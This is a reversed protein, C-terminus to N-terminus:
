VIVTVPNVPVTVPPVYLLPVEVRVRLLLSPEFTEIVPIVEPDPEAKDTLSPTVVTLGTDPIVNLPAVTVSSPSPFM